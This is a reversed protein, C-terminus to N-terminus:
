EAVAWERRQTLSAIPVEGVISFADLVAGGAEKGM